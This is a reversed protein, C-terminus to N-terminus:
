AFYRRYRDLVAVTAAPLMGVGGVLDDATAYEISGVGVISEKKVAGSSASNSNLYALAAQAIAYGLDAPLPDYGANYTIVMQSFSGSRYVESAGRVAWALGDDQYAEYDASVDVGDVTVTLGDVYPTYRLAVPARSRAIRETVSKLALVNSVYNEAAEGAMQLYMALERDRDTDCLGALQRTLDLLTISDPVSGWEVTASAFDAM